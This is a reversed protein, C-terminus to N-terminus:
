GTRADTREVFTWPDIYDHEGGGKAIVYPDTTPLGEAERWVVWLHSLFLKAAKQRAAAEM